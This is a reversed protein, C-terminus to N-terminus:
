GIMRKCRKCTVKAEGVAVVRTVDGDMLMDNADGVFLDKGCLSRFHRPTKENCAHNPRTPPGDGHWYSEFSEYARVGLWGVHSFTKPTKQTKTAM